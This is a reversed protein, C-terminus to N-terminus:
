PLGKDLEVWIPYRPLVEERGDPYVMDSKYPMPAVTLQPQGMCTLMRGQRTTRPEKLGYEIRVQGQNPTVYVDAIVVDPWHHRRRPVCRCLDKQVRLLGPRLGGERFNKPLWAEKGQLPIPFDALDDSCFSPSAGHAMSVLLVWLSM